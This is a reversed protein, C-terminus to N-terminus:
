LQFTTLSSMLDFTPQSFFLSIRSIIWNAICSFLENLNFCRLLNLEKLANLQDIYMYIIRALQLMWVLWSKWTCLSWYIFTTIELKFVKVFSAKPIYEISWYIFIIIELWFVRVFSASQTCEIRWCIFTSREFHKWSLSIKYIFIQLTNLQGISSLLKKLNLCEKLYLKQFANLQGIFSPIEQLNSCWSM